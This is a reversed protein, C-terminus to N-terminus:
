KFEALLKEFEAETIKINQKTLGEQPFNPVMDEYSKKATNQYIVGTLMSNTEMIKTMAM